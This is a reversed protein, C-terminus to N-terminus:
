QGSGKPCAAQTSVLLSHMFHRRRQSDVGLAFKLYASQAIVIAPQEHQDIQGVPAATVPGFQYEVQGGEHGKGVPHFHYGALQNGLFLRAFRLANGPDDLPMPRLAGRPLPNPETLRLISLRRYSAPGQTPSPTQEM